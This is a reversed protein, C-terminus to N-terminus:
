GMWVQVVRLQKQQDMDRRGWTIDDTKITLSLKDKDDLTHLALPCSSEFWALILKIWDLLGSFFMYRQGAFESSRTGTSVGASEQM